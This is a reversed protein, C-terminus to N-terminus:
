ICAEKPLTLQMLCCWKWDPHKVVKHQQEHVAALRYTAAPCCPPTLQLAADVIMQTKCEPTLHGVPQSPYMRILDPDRGPQHTAQQKCRLTQSLEVMGATLEDDACLSSLAAATTCQVKTYQGKDMRSLQDVRHQYSFTM